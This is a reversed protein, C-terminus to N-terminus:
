ASSKMTPNWCWTSARHKRSSIRSRNRSNANDSCGSFVRNISNPPKAASRRLRSPSPLGSVKSKLAEGESAPVGMCTFELKPPPAPPVAHLRLQPHDLVLQPLAHVLRDGLLPSPQLPDHAAVEVIVGHRGIRTCQVREPVMDGVEPPARQPTAALLTPERPLPHRLQRVRPKGFRDDEM